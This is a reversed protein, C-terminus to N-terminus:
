ICNPLANHLLMMPKELQWVIYQYVSVWLNIHFYTGLNMNDLLIQFYFNKLDKVKIREFNLFTKQKMKPNMGNKYHLCSNQSVLSTNNIDPLSLWCGTPWVHSSPVEMHGVSSHLQLICLGARSNPGATSVAWYAICSIEVNHLMITKEEVLM